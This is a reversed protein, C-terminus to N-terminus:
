LQQATPMEPSLQLGCIAAKLMVPVLLSPFSTPYALSGLLNDAPKERIVESPIKPESLLPKKLTCILYVTSINTLASWLSGPVSQSM